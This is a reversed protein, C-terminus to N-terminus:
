RRSRRATSSSSRACAVAPVPARRLLPRRTPTGASCCTRCCRPTSSCSSTRSPARSAWRPSRPAAARPHHGRGDFILRGETPDYIRSVLNFITTKGAGNPGIITFVEGQEVEFSVGDVARIGGFNISSTTPRSSADDCASRGCTPRRGSSPRASTCRSPRSSSGPDEALPRLHRAARAPHGAGPDPRLHRGRRRAEQPIASRM